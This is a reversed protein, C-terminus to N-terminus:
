RRNSQDFEKELRGIAKDVGKQIEDRDIENFRKMFAVVMENRYRMLRDIEKRKEERSLMDTPAIQVARIQKSIKGIPDVGRSLAEHLSIDVGRRRYLDIFEEKSAGGAKYARLTNVAEKSQDYLEYLDDMQRTYKTPTTVTVGRFVPAWEPITNYILRSSPKMEKIKPDSMMVIESAIEAGWKGVGGFAGRVFHDVMLPSMGKGPYTKSLWKAFESTSATYQARPELNQMYGKVIPTDRFADYNAKIEYATSIAPGAIQQPHSFIELPTAKKFDEAWAKVADPDKLLWYDMFREFMSGFLLGLEFPKPLKLITKGGDVSMLWFHNKLWLPQEKYWDEDYNIAYLLMSPATILAAGRLWTSSRNGKDRFLARIMKDNGQISANFFPIVQNIFKGYEGSRGFDTSAERSDIAARIRAEAEPVGQSMLDNRSKEYVAIRTSNETLKSISQLVHLPHSHMIYKVPNKRFKDVKFAVGGASRTLEEIHKVLNEQDLAVLQSHGARDMMFQMMMEVPEGKVGLLSRGALKKGSAAEVAYTLGRAVRFFLLMADKPNKVMHRSLVGAAIFDRFQNRAMFEPTLVAGARLVRAQLSIFKLLNHSGTNTISAYADYVQDELEWYEIKGDRMLAVTNDELHNNAVWIKAHTGLHTDIWANRFAEREEEPLSFYTDQDRDPMRSLAFEERENKSFGAAQLLEDIKKDVPRKSGPVQKGFGDLETKGGSAEIIFNTATLKAHNNAALFEIRYANKIMGEMPDMRVLGPVLRNMEYTVKGATPKPRGPVHGSEKELVFLPAYIDYKDVLGDYQQKSIAGSQLLRTMMANSWNTFDKAAKAWEPHEKLYHDYIEQMENFEEEAALYEASEMNDGFFSDGIVDHMARLRAAIMFTGFDGKDIHKALGHEKIIVEFGKSLPKSSTKSRWPMVALKLAVEAQEAWAGMTQLELDPRKLADYDNIDKGLRRLADRTAVYVFTNKDVMKQYLWRPIDRWTKVPRRDRSVRKAAEERKKTVKEAAAKADFRVRPRNPRSKPQQPVKPINGKPDEQVGLEERQMASIEKMSKIVAMEIPGFDKVYQTMNRPNGALTKRVSALVERVINVLKAWASADQNRLERWFKESGFATAVADSTMEKPVESKYYGYGSIKKNYDEITGGQEASGHKLMLDHITQWQEPYAEEMYHGIEHAMVFLPSNETNGVSVFVRAKDGPIRFGGLGRSMSRASPAFFAVRVGFKGAVARILESMSDNPNVIAGITYREMRNAHSLAARDSLTGVNRRRGQVGEVRTRRNSLFMVGQDIGAAQAQRWAVKLEDREQEAVAIEVWHKEEVRKIAAKLDATEQESVSSKLRDRYPKLAKRRAEKLANIEAIKEAVLKDFSAKVGESVGAKRLDLSRVDAFSGMVGRAEIIDLFQGERTLAPKNGFEKLYDLMENEHQNTLTPFHERAKGIWKAYKMMISYDDSAESLTKLADIVRGNPNLYSLAIIRNADWGYLRRAEHAITTKHKGDERMKRMNAARSFIDNVDREDNLNQAETTAEARTGKFIRVNVEKVGARKAAELTHHGDLVKLKGDSPDRWAVIPTLKEPRFKAMIREMKAENTRSEPNDIDSRKQFEAPTLAATPLLEIGKARKPKVTKKPKAMDLDARNWIIRTPTVATGTAGRKTDPHLAARVNEEKMHKAPTNRPGFVSVPIQANPDMENMVEARGRGEHQVVVARGDEYRVELFPSAIPEGVKIRDATEKHMPYGRSPNLGLFEGPTMFVTYGMYDIQSQDPVAGIGKRQDFNISGVKFKGAINKPNPKKSDVPNNPDYKFLGSKRQDEYVRANELTKEIGWSDQVVMQHPKEGPQSYEILTGSGKTYSLVKYDYGAHTGTTGAPVPGTEEAPAPSQNDDMVPPLDTAEDQGPLERESREIEALEDFPDRGMIVDEPAVIDEPIRATRDLNRASREARYDDKTRTANPNVVPQEPVPKAPRIFGSLDPEGAKKELGRVSKNARYDDKKQERRKFIEAEKDARAKAEQAPKSLRGRFLFDKALEIAADAKAPDQSEYAERTAAELEALQEEDLRGDFLDINTGYEESLAAGVESLVQQREFVEDPAPGIERESAGGVDGFDEPTPPAAKDQEDPVPQTSDSDDVADDQENTEGGDGPLILGAGGGVIAGVATETRYKEPDFFDSWQGRGAAVDQIVAQFREQGGESFTALAARAVRGAPSFFPANTATLLAFNQWFVGESNALAEQPTQGEAMLEQQRQAQEIGAELFGMVGAGTIAQFTKAAKGALGIAQAGKGAAGAAGLGPILFSAMSGIGMFLHDAFQPNEVAVNEQLWQDVSLGAEAVDAGAEDFGMFEIIGGALTMSAPVMAAVGHAIGRFGREWINPMEESKDTFEHPYMAMKADKGGVFIRNSFAQARLRRSVDDPLAPEQQAMPLEATDDVAQVGAQALLRKSIEPDLIQPNTM